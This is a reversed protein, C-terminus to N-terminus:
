AAINEQIKIIGKREDDKLHKKITEPEVDRLTHPFVLKLFLAIDDQKGIRFHNWINWGFHYIDLSTLQNNIRIPKLDKINLRKVYMGIFDCLRYTEDDTAYPAFIKQIYHTAAELDKAKENVSCKRIEEMNLLNSVSKKRSQFYPIKMVAKEIFPIMLNQIIIQISFYIAFAIAIIILFVVNATFNDLGLGLVCLRILAAIGIVASGVFMYLIIYELRKDDIDRNM